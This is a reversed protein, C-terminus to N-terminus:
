SRSEKYSDFSLTSSTSGNTNRRTLRRGLTGSVGNTEEAGGFAAGTRVIKKHSDYTSMTGLGVLAALGARYAHIHPPMNRLGNVPRFFSVQGQTPIRHTLLAAFVAPHHVGLWTSKGFSTSNEHLCSN